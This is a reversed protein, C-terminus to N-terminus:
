MPRTRRHRRAEVPPGTGMKPRVSRHLQTEIQLPTRRHSRTESQPRTAAQQWAIQEREAAQSLSRLRWAFGGDPPALKHSRMAQAWENGAERVARMIQDREANLDDTFTM